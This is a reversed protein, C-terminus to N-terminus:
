APCPTRGLIQRDQDVVSGRRDMPVHAVQGTASQACGVCACPAQPQSHRMLVPSGGRQEELARVCDADKRCFYVLDDYPTQSSRPLFSKLTSNPGIRPIKWDVPFKSCGPLNFTSKRNPRVKNHKPPPKM